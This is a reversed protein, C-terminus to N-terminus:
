KGPTWSYTFKEETILQRYKEIILEVNDDPFYTDIWEKTSQSLNHQLYRRSTAEAGVSVEKAFYRGHNRIYSTNFSFTEDSRYTKHNVSILSPIDYYFLYPTKIFLRYEEFDNNDKKIVELIGQDEPGPAWNWGDTVSAVNGRWYLEERNRPSKLKAWFVKTDNEVLKEISSIDLDPSYGIEGEGGSNFTFPIPNPIRPFIFFLAAIFVSLKLYSRLNILTFFNLHNLRFFYYILFIFSICYFIFYLLTKDFLAGASILLITGFICMVEDRYKRSEMFKLLVINLLFNLGVEPTIVKGFSFIYYLFILLCIINISFQNLIHRFVLGLSSLALIIFSVPTLFERLFIGFVIFILYLGTTLM